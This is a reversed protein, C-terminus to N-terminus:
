PKPEDKAKSDTHRRAVYAGLTPTLMAAISAADLQGLTISNGSWSIVAGGFLFKVLVVAVSVVAISLMADPKGRSNLLMWRM